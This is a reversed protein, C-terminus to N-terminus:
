NLLYLLQLHVTHASASASEIRTRRLDRGERVMKGKKEERGGGEKVEKEEM